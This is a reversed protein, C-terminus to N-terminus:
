RALRRPSLGSTLTFQAAIGACQDLAFEEAMLLASEGARGFLAVPAKLEGVAARNEEVLHAFQRDVQLDLQEADQLFSLKLGDAARLRPFNVHAHHGRGVAIKSRAIRSPM